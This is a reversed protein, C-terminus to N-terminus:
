LRGLSEDRSFAFSKFEHSRIDPTVTIALCFPLSRWFGCRLCFIHTVEILHEYKSIKLTTFRGYKTGWIIGQLTNM